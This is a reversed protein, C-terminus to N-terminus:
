MQLPGKGFFAAGVLNQPKVLADKPLSTGLVHPDVCATIAGQQLHVWRESAWCM